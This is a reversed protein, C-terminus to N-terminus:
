KKSANAVIDAVGAEYVSWSSRRALELASKGMSQRLVEDDALLTLREAIADPTAFLYLLVKAGM